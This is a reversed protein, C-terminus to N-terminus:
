FVNIEGMKSTQNGSTGTDRDMLFFFSFQQTSMLIKDLTSYVLNINRIERHLTCWERIIFLDMLSIKTLLQFFKILSYLSSEAEVGAERWAPMIKQLLKM